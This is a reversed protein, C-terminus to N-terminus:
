MPKPGFDHGFMRGGDVPRATVSSLEVERVIDGGKNTITAVYTGRDTQSIKGLVLDGKGRLLVAAKTLTEMQSADYKHDFRNKRDPKGLMHRLERFEKRAPLGTYADLTLDQVLDGKTNLLALTIQKGDKSAEVTGTKLDNNGHRLLMADILLRAEDTSLPTDRKMMAKMDGHHGGFGKKMDFGGHHFKGGQCDGGKGDHMETRMEDPGAQALASATPIVGLTTAIIAATIMLKRTTNM